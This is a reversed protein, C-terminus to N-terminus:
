DYDEELKDEIADEVAEPLETNGKLMKSFLLLGTASQSKDNVLSGDMRLEYGEISNGTENTYMNIADNITAADSLEYTKITGNTIGIKVTKSM